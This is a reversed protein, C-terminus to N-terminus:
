ATEADAQLFLRTVLGCIIANGLLFIQAWLNSGMPWVAPASFTAVTFFSTMGIAVGFALWKLYPHSAFCSLLCIPIFVSAFIPNLQNSTWIVSGLEPIATGMFRFPWHAMGTVHIARIFFLGISGVTVGLLFTPSWPNFRTSNPVLLWTLIGAIALKLVMDKGDIGRWSWWVAPSSSMMGALAVVLIGLCFFSILVRKM